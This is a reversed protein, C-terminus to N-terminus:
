VDITLATRARKGKERRQILKENEELMRDMKVISQAMNPLANEKFADVKDFASHIHQMCEEIVELSIQAETALKFVETAQDDLMEAGLKMFHETTTRLGKLKDLQNRQHVLGLVIAIVNQLQVVSVYKADKTARLLERNTAILIESSMISQQNALLTQQLSMVRQRVPFLLEQMVFKKREPETIGEDDLKQQLGADILMALQIAAWLKFTSDRMTQQDSAFIENDRELRAAGEDISQVIIDIMTQASQAKSMFKDLFRGLRGRSLLTSIAKPNLGFKVPDLAVMQQKLAILDNGIEKGDKSRYLTGVSEKLMLSRHAAKEQTSSGLNDVATRKSQADYDDGLLLDVFQDARAALKPDIQDKKEALQKVAPDIQKALAKTDSSLPVLNLEQFVQEETKIKLTETEPVEKVLSKVKQKEKEGLAKKLVAVEQRLDKVESDKVKEKSM